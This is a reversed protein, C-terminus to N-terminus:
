LADARTVLRSSTISVRPFSKHLPNLVLVQQQPYLTSPVWIGLLDSKNMQEPLNTEESLPPTAGLPQGINATRFLDANDPLRLRELLMVDPHSGAEWLKAIRHDPTTELGPDRVPPGAEDALLRLAAARAFSGKGVGQPGTLLWAHHMRGSARADHDVQEM